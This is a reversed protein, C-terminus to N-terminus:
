EPEVLDLLEHRDGLTVTARRKVSRRLYTIEVDAGVQSFSVLRVLHDSNEVPIGDVAIVIDGRKLGAKAAPGDRLTLSSIEAGRYVRGDVVRRVRPRNVDQVTVAMFGYRVVSGARLTDLIARTNKDIPIAFGAGENVGSRTEIATVIGIVEGDINFLPGGSNGPNIPSSTEILNGYYQRSPYEALRQTLSRGLATVTGLGVSMRGDDNALGFPNGVAFSWHGVKVKAIDSWRVPELGKADIKLVALDSRTDTQHVTAPYREGSSLIVSFDNADELVHRNTAIYGDGDIVFGSGQTVPVRVSGEEGEQVNHVYYTRIAVVSPAVQEAVEVFARQLAKLDALRYKGPLGASAPTPTAAWALMLTALAVWKRTMRVSRTAYEM